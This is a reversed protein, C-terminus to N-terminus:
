IVKIGREEYQNKLESDLDDSTVILDISELTSIIAFCEKNFKSADTVIIAKNSVEIMARKTSAEIFNPTSIGNELSVGNTGVFAKDVRFNRLMSETISGVMARTKLRLNGGTVFLEIGRKNSLEDSIDISNTIVTINNASINKALELTTTGTDLIITDGDEILMAAKKGISIKENHKSDKKEQFSPEFQTKGKLMAGGHTRNIVGESEMEQLDRRITSESVDFAKVLENVKVKGKKKLLKIIEQQREELFM